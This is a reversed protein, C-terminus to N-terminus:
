RRTWKGAVCDRVHSELDDESTMRLLSGDINGHHQLQYRFRKVIIMLM